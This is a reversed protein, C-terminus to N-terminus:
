KAIVDKLGEIIGHIKRKVGADLENDFVLWILQECADAVAVRIDENM